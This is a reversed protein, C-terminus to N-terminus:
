LFELNFNFRGAVRDLQDLFWEEDLRDLRALAEDVPLPTLIYAFLEDMGEVEPDSVVELTVQPDPGFYKQLYVHADLLVEVLQPHAFLFHKVAAANRLSYIDEFRNLHDLFSSADLLTGYQALTAILATLEEDPHGKLLSLSDRLSLLGRIGKIEIWCHQDEWTLTDTGRLRYNLTQQAIAGISASLAELVLKPPLTLVGADLEGPGLFPPMHPDYRHELYSTTSPAM